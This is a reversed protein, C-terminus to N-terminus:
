KRHSFHSEKITTIRKRDAIGDKYSSYHQETSDTRLILEKSTVEEIKSHPYYYIAPYGTSAPLDVKLDTYLFVEDESLEWVGTLVTDINNKTLDVKKDSHFVLIDKKTDDIISDVTVRDLKSNSYVKKVTRELKWRHNVILQEKNTLELEKESCSILVIVLCNKLLKNLVIENQSLFVTLLTCFNQHFVSYYM